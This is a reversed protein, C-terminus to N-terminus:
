VEFPEGKGKECYSKLSEMYHGWVHNCQGYFDNAEKWNNHQFCVRINEGQPILEFSLKTGIWDEHGDICEWHVEKDPTTNIVKMKNFMHDGFRFELEGGEKGDGSTQRTWWNQLGEVTTIAEFIKGAPANIEFIHKIDAM